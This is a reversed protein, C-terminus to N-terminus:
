GEVETGAGPRHHLILTVGGRHDPRRFRLSRGELRVPAYGRGQFSEADGEAGWNYGASLLALPKLKPETAIIQERELWM